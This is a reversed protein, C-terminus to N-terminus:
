LAKSKIHRDFYELFRYRFQYDLEQIVYFLKKRLTILRLRTEKMKQITTSFQEIPVNNELLKSVGQMMESFDEYVKMWLNIAKKVENAQM